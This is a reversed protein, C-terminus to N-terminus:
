LIPVIFKIIALTILVLAGIWWYSLTIYFIAGGVVIGIILLIWWTKKLQKKDIFKRSFLGAFLGGIIGFTISLALILPSLFNSIVCSLNPILGKGGYTKGAIKFEPFSVWYGCESCDPDEKDILGDNDNDIKDDCITEKDEKIKKCARMGTETEECKEDDKCDSDDVCFEACVGEFCVENSDCKFSSELMNCQEDTKIWFLSNPDDISCFYFHKGKGIELHYNCDDTESEFVCADDGAKYDRGFFTCYDQTMDKCAGDVCGWNSGYSTCDVSKWDIWNNNCIAESLQTSSVCGDEWTSPKGNSTTTVEGKSKYDKGDSDSCTTVPTMDKCAGDVCGYNGGYIANCDVMSQTPVKNIWGECYYESLLGGSMCWDTYTVSNSVVSGKILYKEGGDSDSCDASILSINLLFFLLVSIILKNRM